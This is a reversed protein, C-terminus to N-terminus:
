ATVIRATGPAMTGSTATISIEGTRGPAGRIVLLALGHFARRWDAQFPDSSAANGNDVAAIEGPGTLAFHVRDDANPCLSGAADEIRVTVFSLDYGDAAITTRDPELRIRAAAGATRITKEAVPRGARYGVVRLSGPAYAVDWAVRYRSAFAPGSVKLPLSVLDRGFVKRGLSRDNVFLEVEECNAYVHIPIIEGERGAWNWHPLLHVMPASTWHSQYLYFRDKPFGALDVAGFYSSRTPWDGNWYGNTNNDRGGYPTPEGLYDFGTWIFEGLVSPTKRHAEFELDPPYGWPPSVLDYSTVQLSPHKEYREMPLHYVGRSSCCSSTEAGYLIWDPHAAQVSAYLFDRYNMGVLDVAEAMGNEYPAPSSNFGATTPRTPDEARVLAALRATLGDNPLNQELIENGISWMIVSPSNRDRWMGARLDREHWADFDRHYGNPVKGRRWEDFLEVQVLLGRRDCLAILEPSPPNHSTRIANVGMTEMIELQRETARTNVAAGLSGLDHHLCAGKLQVRRGNLRFGQTSSFEITRIGFPTTYVDLVEGTGARRVTTVARYLQPTALDWRQPRDVQLSQSISEQTGAAVQRPTSLSAATGGSPDVLVTELVLDVAVPSQNVVQSELLVSAAADTVAPTRVFTGWLPIHVPSTIELWTNRYLGAGPYWRSSLNEPALRVAVVNDGRWNLHPTLDYQFGVYGYPRYGLSHGNIWVESNCMAGDFRLGVVRGEASPPLRFTKRYWGPGYFPLGGTRANHKIDFPGEIAWDHPLRLQRWGRDDFSAQETGPQDERTFRWDENFSECSRGPQIVRWGGETPVATM